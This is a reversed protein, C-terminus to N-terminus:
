IKRKLLPILFIALGIFIIGLLSVLFAVAILILLGLLTKKSFVLKGFLELTSVKVKKQKLCAYVTLCLWLTIACVIATAISSVLVTEFPLKEQYSDFSNHVSENYSSMGICSVFLVITGFYYSIELRRESNM